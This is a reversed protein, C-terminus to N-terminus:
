IKQRRHCGLLGCPEPCLDMAHRIVKAFPSHLVTEFSDKKLDGPLSAGVTINERMYHCLSLDGYQDMVVAREHSACEPKFETKAIYSHLANVDQITHMLFYPHKKFGEIMIHRTRDAAEFRSEDHWWEAEYFTDVESKREFTKILPQVSFMKAGLSKALDITAPLTPLTRRMLIASVNLNFRPGKSALKLMNEKAKALTGPIGRIYDHVSEDASDISITLDTPPCALIREVIDDNFTGNSSMAVQVDRSRIEKILAFISDPEIFPEGGYLAVGPQRNHEVCYTKFKDVISIYDLSIKSSKNMWIHCQKCRLNCTHHIPLHLFLPKMPVKRCLYIRNDEHIRQDAMTSADIKMEDASFGHYLLFSNFDQGYLRKHDPWWYAEARDEESVIAPDYVTTKQPGLPVSIIMTGHSDLVRRMESLAAVDRDVHELVHLNVILDFSENPFPMNSVDCYFDGFDTDLSASVVRNKLRLANIMQRELPFQAGIILIRRGRIEKFIKYLQIM